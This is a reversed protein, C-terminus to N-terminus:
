QRVSGAHARLEVVALPQCNQDTILFDSQSAWRVQLTEDVYQFAPSMGEVNGTAIIRVARGKFLGHIPTNYTAIQSVIEQGPTPHAPAATTM